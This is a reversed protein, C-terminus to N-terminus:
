PNEQLLAVSQEAGQQNTSQQKTNEIVLNVKRAAAYAHSDSTESMSKDEGFSHILLRKRDIGQAELYDAINSARKESLALNYSETGRPDAYGSISILSDPQQHIQEVIAMLISAQDRNIIFKNTDFYLDTEILKLKVEQREGQIAGGSNSSSDMNNQSLEMTEITELPESSSNKSPPMALAIDDSIMPIPLPSDPLNTNVMNDQEPSEISALLAGGVGAVIFGVPGAILGGIIASSVMAVGQKPTGQTEAIVPTSSLTALLIIPIIKQTKKM